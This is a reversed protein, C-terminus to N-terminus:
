YTIVLVKQAFFENWCKKKFRWPSKPVCFSAAQAILLKVILPLFSWTLRSFFFTIITLVPFHVVRKHKPPKSQKYDRDQIEKSSSTIIYILTDRRKQQRPQIGQVASHLEVMRYNITLLLNELQEPPGLHDSFCESLPQHHLLCLLQFLLLIHLYSPQNFFFLQATCSQFM